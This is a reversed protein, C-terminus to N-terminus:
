NAAQTSAVVARLTAAAEPLPEWAHLTIAYRGTGNRFDFILHNGLMGGVPYGPALLLDGSLGAWRVRGFYLSRTRERAMLGRRLRVPRRRFTFVGAAIREVRGGVIALHAMRPPRNREPEGPYEGGRELNFVALPPSPPRLLDVALHSLYAARVSPVLRPCAARVLSSRRCHAFRKPALPVLAVPRGLSVAPVASSKEESASFACGSLLVAAAVVVFGRTM